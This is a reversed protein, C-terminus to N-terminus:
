KNEEELKLQLCEKKRRIAIDIENKPIKGTKKIFGNTFVVADQRLFFYLVRVYGEIGKFRLEFISHGLYKSYPRKLRHGSVELLGKTYQFKEKSKKNLSSVFYEVPKEGSALSYYYCKCEAM